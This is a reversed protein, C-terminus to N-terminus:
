VHSIENFNSLLKFLMVAPLGFIAGSSDRFHSINKSPYNKVCTLINSLYEDATLIYATISQEMELKCGFRQM